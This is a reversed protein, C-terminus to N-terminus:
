YAVQQQGSRVYGAWSNTLLSRAGVRGASAAMENLQKYTKLEAAERDAAAKAEDINAQQRRILAMQEKALASQEQMSQIQMAELAPDPSPASGM